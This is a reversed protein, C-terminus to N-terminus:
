VSIRYRVEHLEYNNSSQEVKTAGDLSFGMAEYFKRAALNSALVWLTVSLYKQFRTARLAFRCLAGGAGKRWYGPQVYIAAIEAVEGPNSDKDRSPVLDCFGIIAKESEVVLTGHSETALHNNWFIARKDADLADLIADPM